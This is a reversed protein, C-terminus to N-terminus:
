SDSKCSCFWCHCRSNKTRSTHHTKVSFGYYQTNRSKLWFQNPIVAKWNCQNPHYTLFVIVLLKRSKDGLDTNWKRRGNPENVCWFLNYKNRWHQKIDVSVMLVILSLNQQWWYKSNDIATAPIVVVNTWFWKLQHPTKQPQKKQHWEEKESRKIWTLPCFPSPGWVIKSNKQKRRTHTLHQKQTQANKFRM